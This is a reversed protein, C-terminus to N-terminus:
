ALDGLVSMGSSQTNNDEAANSANVSVMLVQNTAKTGSALFLYNTGLGGASLPNYNADAFNSTYNYDTLGAGDDTLSSMNLSDNITPTGGSVIVSAWAAALGSLDRDASEGDLRVSDNGKIKTSM